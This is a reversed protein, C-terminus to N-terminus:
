HGTHKNTPEAFEDLAAMAAQRTIWSSLIAASEQKGAKNAIQLAKAARIPLTRLDTDSDLVKTLLSGNGLSAAAEIPTMRSVRRWVPDYPLAVGNTRARNALLVLTTDLHGKLIALSISTHIIGDHDIGEGFSGCAEVDAGHDLLALCIDARGEGAAILLPTYGNENIAETDAGLRLLYITINPVDLGGVIHLLTGIYSERGYNVDAGRRILESCTDIKGNLAAEQFATKGSRDLDDVIAGRDILMMCIDTHGKKAAAALPKYTAENNIDAGRDILMTCLDMRGNCAAAWLSTYGFRNMANVDSGRDILMLCIDAYGFDVAQMLLTNRDFLNDVYNNIQLRDTNADLLNCCQEINGNEIALFLLDNNGKLCDVM